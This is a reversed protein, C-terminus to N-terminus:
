GMADRIRMIATRTEADIARELEPVADEFLWYNTVTLLDQIEEESTKVIFQHSEILDDIEARREDIHDLTVEKACSNDGQVNDNILRGFNEMARILLVYNDLMDSAQPHHASAWQSRWQNNEIEPSKSFGTTPHACKHPLCTRALPM